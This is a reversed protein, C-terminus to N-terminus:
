MSRAEFCVTRTMLCTSPAAFTKMCHRRECSRNGECRSAYSMELALDGLLVSLLGMMVFGDHREEIQRGDIDRSSAAAELRRTSNVCWKREKNRLDVLARYRSWSEDTALIDALEKDQRVTSTEVIAEGGRRSSTSEDETGSSRGPLDAAQEM